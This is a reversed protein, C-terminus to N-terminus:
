GGAVVIPVIVEAVIQTPIPLIAGFPLAELLQIKYEARIRLPEGQARSGSSTPFVVFFPPDPNILSPLAGKLTAFIKNDDLPYYAAYQGAERVAEELGIQLYFLIGFHMVACLILVLLPLVLVFEVLAQGRGAAKGTRRRLWGNTAKM